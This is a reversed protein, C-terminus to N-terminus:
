RVGGKFRPTPDMAIQVYFQGDYGRESQDEPALSKLEHLRRAEFATGFNALPAQGYKWNSYRALTVIPLICLLAVFMRTMAPQSLGEHKM